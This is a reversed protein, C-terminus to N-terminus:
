AEATGLDEDTLPFSSEEQKKQQEEQDVKVSFLLGSSIQSSILMLLVGMVLVSVATRIFLTFIDAGALYSTIMVVVAVFILILTSLTYTFELLFPLPTSEPPKRKQKARAKPPRGSNKKQSNGKPENLEKNM